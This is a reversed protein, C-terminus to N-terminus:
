PIYTSPIRHLCKSRRRKKAQKSAQRKGLSKWCSKTYTKELCENSSGGYWRYFFVVFVASLSWCLTTPKKAYACWFHLHLSFFELFMQVFQSYLHMCIKHTNELKICSFSGFPYNFKRIWTRRIMSVVRLPKTENSQKTKIKKYPMIIKGTTYCERWKPICPILISQFDLCKYYCGSNCIFYFPFVEINKEYNNM